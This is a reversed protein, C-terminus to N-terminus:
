RMCEPLQCANPHEELFRRIVQELFPRFVRKIIDLTSLSEGPWMEASFKNLDAQSNFASHAGKAYNLRVGMVNNLPGHPGKNLPRDFSAAQKDNDIGSVCCANGHAHMCVWIEEQDTWTCGAGGAKALSKHRKFLESLSEIKDPAKYEPFAEQAELITMGSISSVAEVEELRDQIRDAKEPDYEMCLTLRYDDWQKPTMDGKFVNAGWTTLAFGQGVADACLRPDWQDLSSMDFRYHTSAGGSGESLMVVPRGTITCTFPEGEEVRGLLRVVEDVNQQQQVPGPEVFSTATVAFYDARPSDLNSKLLKCM